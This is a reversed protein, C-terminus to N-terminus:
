TKRSQSSHGWITTRGAPVRIMPEGGLSGPRRSLSPGRCRTVIARGNATPFYLTVNASHSAQTDASAVDLQHPEDALQRGVELRDGVEAPVVTRRDALHAAPDDREQRPGLRPWLWGVRRPPCLLLRRCERELRRSSQVQNLYGYLYIKLMTAPHYSPRGTAEPEIDLGLEALDLADIFADVVRVPNDGDIAEDLREPFLTSQDRDRGEIFRKM